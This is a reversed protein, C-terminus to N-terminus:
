GACRRSDSSPAGLRGYYNLINSLRGHLRLRKLQADTPLVRQRRKSISLREAARYDGRSANAPRTADSPFQLGTTM